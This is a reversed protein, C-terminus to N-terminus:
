EDGGNEETDQLLAGRARARRPVPAIRKTSKAPPVKSPLLVSTQQQVPVIVQDAVPPVASVSPFQDTVLKPKTAKRKDLFSLGELQKQMVENRERESSLSEMLRKIQEQETAGQEQRNKFAAYLSHSFDAVVDSLESPAVPDLSITIRPLGKAKTAMLKASDPGSSSLKVLGSSLSSYLYDLFDSCSGAIGVDDQLDHIDPLALSRRWALSHLDTVVVRLLGQGHAHFLVPRRPQEEHDDDPQAEGFVAPMKVVAAM